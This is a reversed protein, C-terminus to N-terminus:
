RRLLHCQPRRPRRPPHAPGHVGLAGIETENTKVIVDFLGPMPKRMWDYGSAALVHCPADLQAADAPPLPSSPFRVARLIGEIKDSWSKVGKDTTWGQNTVIYVTRRRTLTHRRLVGQVCGSQALDRLRGPM